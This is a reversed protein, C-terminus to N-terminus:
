LFSKEIVNNLFQPSVPQSIMIERVESFSFIQYLSFDLFLNGNEVFDLQKAVESWANIVVDKEKYGKDTKDFLCPYGKVTEALIEEEAINIVKKGAM